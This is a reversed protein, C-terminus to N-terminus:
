PASASPVPLAAAPSPGSASKDANRKEVAAKRQQALEVRERQAQARRAAQAQATSQKRALQEEAVAQDKTPAAARTASPSKRSRTSQSGADEPAAPITGPLLLDSKPQAAKRELELLREATREQRRKDNLLFEQQQLPAIADRHTKRAAEVCPTVVFRAACAREQERLRQDASSREQAIRAREVVEDLQAHVPVVLSALLGWLMLHCGPRM